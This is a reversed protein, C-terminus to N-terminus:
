ESRAAIFEALESKRAMTDQYGLELLQSTYEREFALYSVLDWGTKSSAGMGRLAHRVMFPFTDFLEGALTGLDKSPRLAMVPIPRLPYGNAELQHKPILELTHNIRQMREIDTELSDMFVANLLTGSIDALTPHQPAAASNLALTHENSRFYRIGIALVRDSGMHIAPSLPADLRVCGDGFYNDGVLIPPFFIPMASSAMVHEVGLNTRVGIRSTRAWTQIQNDGDFFVVATGTSYNTASVAVGHLVGTKINREIAEPLVHERILERLPATDLLYSVPFLQLLGGMTLNAAWRLGNEAIPLTGTRFVRSSKLRDWLDWLRRAAQQFDDAYSALYTGNIAGASTGAIISFPSTRSGSIEALARIAGAQYAGRAGGGTLVLGIKSQATSISYGKEFFPLVDRLRFDLAKFGFRTISRRSM